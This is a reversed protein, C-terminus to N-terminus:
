FSNKFSSNPIFQLFVLPFQLLASAFIIPMVGGQVLRLPLYTNKGGYMKRGVVKLM